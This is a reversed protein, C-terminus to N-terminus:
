DFSRSVLLVVNGYNKRLARRGSSDRVFHKKEEFEENGQGEEDKSDLDDEGGRNDRGCRLPSRELVRLVVVFEIAVRFTGKLRIHTEVEFVICTQQLISKFIQISPLHTFAICLNLSLPSSPQTLKQSPQQM